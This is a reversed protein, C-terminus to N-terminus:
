NCVGFVNVSLELQKGSEASILTMHYVCYDDFGDNFATRPTWIGVYRIRSLTFEIYNNTKDYSGTGSAILISNERFDVTFTGTTSGFNNDNLQFGQTPDFNNEWFNSIPPVYGGPPSVVIAGNVMNVGGRNFFQASLCNFTAGNSTGNSTVVKVTYSKVSLTSPIIATVVKATNTLVSAEVTGFLVKTAGLLNSGKLLLLQDTINAIAVIEDLVVPTTITFTKSNSTGGLNVVTVNVAGTAIAPVLVTIGTNTNTIPTVETSNFRVKAADLNTGTLTVTTGPTGM